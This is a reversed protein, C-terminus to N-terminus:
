CLNLFIKPQMRKLFYYSSYSACIKLALPKKELVLKIYGLGETFPNYFESELEDPSWLASSASSVAKLTSSEESHLFDPNLDEINEEYLRKTSLPPVSVSQAQVFAELGAASNEKFAQLKKYLAPNSKDM